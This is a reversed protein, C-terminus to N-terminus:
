GNEKQVLELFPVALERFPLFAPDNGLVEGLLRVDKTLLKAGHGFAAPKPLRAYVEFGFSRGSSAKILEAFGSRDLGLAAAANMAHHAIAMHAAMMANNVLKAMQGAGVDGVRVILAGFTEFIPRAATFAVEDSGVMVTLTRTAAAPGGGSVPADLLTIGRTAAHKALAIVTNPHVTSHIAIRGGPRMAAILKDCVQKTGADDVVCVGVHECCAGL